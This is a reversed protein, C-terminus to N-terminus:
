LHAELRQFVTDGIHDHIWRLTPIVERDAVEVGQGFLVHTSFGIQAEVNPSKTVECLRVPPGDLRLPEPTFSRFFDSGDSAILEYRSQTARLVPSLVVERHKDRNSMKNLLWLPDEHLPKLAPDPALERVVDRAAKKLLSISQANDRVAGNYIPFSPQEQDDATMHPNTNSLAYVVHDLSNRLCQFADGVVLPLDDPLPKLQEAYLVFRGASNPQEFARYGDASFWSKILAEAKEIHVQAWALKRRHSRM